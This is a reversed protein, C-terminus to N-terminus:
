DKAFSLRRHGFVACVSPSFVESEWVSAKYPKIKEEQVWLIPTCWTTRKYFCFLPSIITGPHKQQVYIVSYLIKLFFFLIPLKVSQKHVSKLQHLKASGTCKYQSTSVKRAAQLTDESTSKGFIFLFLFFSYTFSVFPSFFIISSKWCLVNEKFVVAVRSQRLSM